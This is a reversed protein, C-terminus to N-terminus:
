RLKMHTAALDAKLDTFYLVRYCITDTAQPFYLDRNNPTKSSSCNGVVQDGAYVIGNGRLLYPTSASFSVVPSGSDGEGVVITNDLKKAQVLNEILKNKVIRTKATDTIKVNCHRGTNGGNVCVLQGLTNSAVGNVLNTSSTNFPGNYSYSSVSGRTPFVLSLDQDPFNYYTSPSWKGIVKGSSLTELQLSTESPFCHRATLLYDIDTTESVVGFGISCLRYQGDVWTKFFSGGHWPESDNARSNLERINERDIFTIVTVGLKVELNNVWDKSPASGSADFGISIGSGDPEIQFSKLNIGGTIESKKVMLGLVDAANELDNLSHKAARVTIKVQQRTAIFDNIQESPEGHIFLDIALNEQDPIQGVFGPLSGTAIEEVIPQTISYNETFDQASGLASPGEQYKKAMVSGSLAACLTTALVFTLFKKMKGRKTFVWLTDFCQSFHEVIPFM